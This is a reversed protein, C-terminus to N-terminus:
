PINSVKLNKLVQALFYIAMPSPRIVARVNLQLVNKYFARSSSLERGKSSLEFDCFLSVFLCRFEM